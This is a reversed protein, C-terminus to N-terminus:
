SLSAARTPDRALRKNDLAITEAWLDDIWDGSERYEEWQLEDDPNYEKPQREQDSDFNKM